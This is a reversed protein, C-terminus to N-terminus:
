AHCVPESIETPTHRLDGLWVSLDDRDFRIEGTPLTVYPIAEERVLKNVKRVSIGLISAVDLDDLLANFM